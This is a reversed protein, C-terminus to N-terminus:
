QLVHKMRKQYIMFTSLFLPSPSFLKELKRKSIYNKDRLLDQGQLIIDQM